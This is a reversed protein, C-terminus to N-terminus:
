PVAPVPSTHPGLTRTTHRSPAPKFQQQAVQHYSPIFMEMARLNDATREGTVGYLETPNCTSLIVVKKLVGRARLQDAAECAQEIRFAVRERLEISATRHSIGILAIGM